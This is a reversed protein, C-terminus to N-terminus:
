FLKQQPPPPTAPADLEALLKDLSREAKKAAQLTERSKDGGFWRLQLLRMVSAATAINQLLQARAESIQAQEPLGDVPIM